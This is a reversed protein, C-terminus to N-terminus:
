KKKATRPKPNVVAADVSIESIATARVLGIRKIPVMATPLLNTPPEHLTPNTKGEEAFGMNAAVLGFEVYIAWIGEHIGEKIILATVIEKYDFFLQEIEAM